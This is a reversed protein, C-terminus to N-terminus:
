TPNWHAVRLDVRPTASRGSSVFPVEELQLLRLQEEAVEPACTGDSRLVRQWPTDVDSKTSMVRAVLRPSGQELWEAIAGYTMVKGVPIRDVLDLVRRDFATLGQRPSRAPDLYKTPRSVQRIYQAHV